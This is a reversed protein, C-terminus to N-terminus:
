TTFWTGGSNAAVGAVNATLATLDLASAELMGMVMGSHASHAYYGGGSFALWVPSPPVTPETEPVTPDPTTSTTQPADPPDPPKASTCAALVALGFGSRM